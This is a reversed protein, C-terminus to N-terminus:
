PMGPPVYRGLFPFTASPKGTMTLPWIAGNVTFSNVQVTVTRPRVGSTSPTFTVSVGSVSVGPLISSGGVSLGTNVVNVVSDVYAAPDGGQESYTRMAAYRAGAHVAKDVKTYNYLILGFNVTGLMLLVLLPLLLALEVMAAGSQRKKRM